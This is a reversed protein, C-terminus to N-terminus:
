LRSLAGATLVRFFFCVFGSEYPVIDFYKLMGTSPAMFGYFYDVVGDLEYLNVRSSRRYHLLREKDHQGKERSFSSRMSHKATCTIMHDKGCIHVHQM